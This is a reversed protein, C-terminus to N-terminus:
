GLYGTTAIGPGRGPSLQFQPQLNSAGGGGGIGGVPLMWVVGQVAGGAVDM